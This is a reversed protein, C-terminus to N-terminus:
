MGAETSGKWMGCYCVSGGSCKKKARSAVKIKKAALDGCIRNRRNPISKKM